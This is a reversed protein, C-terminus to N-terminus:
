NKEINDFYECPEDSNKGAFHGTIWYVKYYDLGEDYDIGTVIGMEGAFEERDDTILDGIKYKM